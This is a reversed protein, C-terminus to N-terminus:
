EGGATARIVPATADSARTADDEVSRSRARRPGFRDPAALERVAESRANATSSALAGDRRRELFELTLLAAYAARQGKVYDRALLAEQAENLAVSALVHYSADIACDAKPGFAQLARAIPDDVPPM